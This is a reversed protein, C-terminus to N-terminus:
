RAMMACRVIPGKSGPRQEAKEGRPKRVGSKMDANKEPREARGGDV